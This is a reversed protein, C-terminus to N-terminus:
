YRDERKRRLLWGFTRFVLAPRAGLLVGALGVGLLGALKNDAFYERMQDIFAPGEAAKERVPRRRRPPSFRAEYSSDELRRAIAHVILTGICMVVCFIFLIAAATESDYRHELGIFVMLFLCVFGLLVFLALIAASVVALLFRGRIREMKPQLWAENLEYFLDELARMM